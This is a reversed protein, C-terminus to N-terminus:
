QKEERRKIRQVVAVSRKDRDADAAAAGLAAREDASSSAACCSGVALSGSDGVTTTESWLPRKGLLKTPSFLGHDTTPLTTTKFSGLNRSFVLWKQGNKPM